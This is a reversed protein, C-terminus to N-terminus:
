FDEEPENKATSKLTEAKKVLELFEKKYMDSNNDISGQALSKVLKYNSTGKFESNRLIMGFAAVASAFRINSSALQSNANVPVEFLKSNDEDPKKYRLKVFMLENSFSTSTKKAKQKQYRLPDVTGLEDDDETGFPIIEYLATVTHNSGMDGADKKDNNFDEKALIRNEYGILRYGKVKEPNFEVQLKVDKAITFLTGGFESILVKKAESINDIYAHNGNGKDALKQMKGDQYNGTGFGLVTLYVGTARKQEILNELADDSSAGVNFDGDTCLIVRNNGEKMFNQQATKYALEIGAGGATSGGAELANIAEKIKQKDNTSPLVLGANGAYVVIAIKDQPRLQESLLQLSSKVLPLKDPSEMSGSVDILFVLNSPPLKDYDIKKGQLGIMVLQHENNWPCKTSETTVSFPKDDKPQPYNYSFYNIMEEVRVAGPTPLTGDNILRRVNSYSAADVDISFTSLPHDTVKQFINEQINDYGERNYEEDKSKISSNGRVKVSKSGSYGQVVVGAVRGSLATSVQASSTMDMKRQAGYGVVVVENLAQTVPQMKVDIVTKGKVKIYQSQYGVYSFSLTANEDAVKISYSGTADSSVSTKTSKVIVSVGQLPNGKEDTIKGTITISQATFLFTGAYVLLVSLLTKM